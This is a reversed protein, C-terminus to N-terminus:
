LWKLYPFLFISADIIELNNINTYNLLGVTFKRAGRAGVFGARCNSLSKCGDPM